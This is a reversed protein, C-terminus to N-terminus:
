AVGHLSIPTHPHLLGHHIADKGTKPAHFKAVVKWSTETERYIYASRSLRAVQWSDPAVESDWFTATIHDTVPDPNPLSFWDHAQNERPTLPPTLLTMPSGVQVTNM